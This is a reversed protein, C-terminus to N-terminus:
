LVTPVLKCAWHASMRTQVPQTVLNHAPNQPYLSTPTHARACTRMCAHTLISLTLLLTHFYQLLSPPSWTPFLSPSDPLSAYPHCTGTHPKRSFQPSAIYSVLSSSDGLPQISVWKLSHVLSALAIYLAHRPHRHPLCCQQPSQTAKDWPSHPSHHPYSHFRMPTEMPNTLATPSKNETCPQLYHSLLSLVWVTQLEAM